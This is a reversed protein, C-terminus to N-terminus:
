NDGSDGDSLATTASAVSSTAGWVVSTGTLSSNAGWVVSTAGWVVSTASLCNSGWVVSNGWVVSTAGWVVSVGAFPSASGPVTNKVTVSGNSNLVATQSFALGNALDSNGLAANVDLYGAGYTFLDYENNYQNGWGDLSWSFQNFGKWATKMLRAKVQDPTLAPNQQLMLAVAGSVVPTAMSTGSLVYYKASNGNNPSVEYQPYTTDLTSGNVRLSVMRNGPAVLDPKVIHDIATPGKYSYSAVKDDVRTSTGLTMTAGVTIVAPDNAPVGITAFGNTPGYRGSNGAAAVVVIGAQWAAEVAQDVPDLTYTEFM